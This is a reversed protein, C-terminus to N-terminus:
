FTFAWRDFSSNITRNKHWFTQAHYLSNGAEIFCVMLFVNPKSFVNAQINQTFVSPKYNM